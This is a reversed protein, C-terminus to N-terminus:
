TLFTTNSHAVQIGYVDTVMPRVHLMATPRQQYRRGFSILTNRKFGDVGDDHQTAPLDSGLSQLRADPAANAYGGQTHAARNPENYPAGGAAVYVQSCCLIAGDHVVGMGEGQGLRDDRRLQLVAPFNDIAPRAVLLIGAGRILKGSARLLNQVPDWTQGIRLGGVM